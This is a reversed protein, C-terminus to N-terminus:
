IEGTLKNTGLHLYTLASLSSIFPPISGVGHHCYCNTFILHNCVVIHMYINDYNTCIVNEGTLSNAGLNLSTLLTLSSISSSISGITDHYYPNCLCSMHHYVYTNDNCKM